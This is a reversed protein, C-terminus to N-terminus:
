LLRFGPLNKLFERESKEGVIRSNQIEDGKPNFFLITPPAIVNFKEQLLKNNLTNKTLDVRLLIYNKLAARVAPKTFTYRDMQICSMCWDAYFDLMIPKSLQKAHAVQTNFDDINEIPTFQLEQNEQKSFELPKLPNTVGNFAGIGLLVAYIFLLIGLVKALKHQTSSFAGLAIASGLALLAWLILTIEGPLIRALMWIAVGLMLVGMIYQTAKMWKGAKPLLKASSIGVVLLPAGMGLGMFFLAYAGILADGTQSIYGLVGVLPATVCPSLILTSLIGMILVGFYSGHKQHQSIKAVAARLKEPLQINYLGFLSLAMLVFILSFLIIIWPQQLYAQISQGAAGFLAGVLAYTIAMGLVYTLSLGFSRAHSIEGQGVIIASLIPIMPLVCPTLSILIGFGLFTLIIAILNHKELLAEISNKQTIPAHKVSIDVPIPIDINLPQSYVMYNGALNVQVIKSIPPYCFGQESCGQYNVQLVIDKANSTIIPLPVILEQTYVKLTGLGPYDKTKTSLPLLPDGIEDNVPKLVKFSIRDRYLYYGDKIQWAALVTQYDRATASLQFVQDAPLPQPDALGLLSFFLILCLIIKRMPSHNRLAATFALRNM